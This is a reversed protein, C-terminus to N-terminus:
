GFFDICQQAIESASPELEDSNLDYGCTIRKSLESGDSWSDFLIKSDPQIYYSDSVRRNEVDLYNISMIRLKTIGRILYGKSRLDSNVDDIIKEYGIDSNERSSVIVAQDDYESLNESYRGTVTIVIKKQNGERFKTYEQEQFPCRDIELEFYDSLYLKPNHAVGATKAFSHVTSEGQLIEGLYVFEPKYQSVAIDTQRNQIELQKLGIDAQTQELNAQTSALLNSVSQLKIGWIGMVLTLISFVCIDFVVKNRELCARFQQYKTKSEDDM